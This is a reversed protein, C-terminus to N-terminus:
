SHFFNILDIKQFNNSFNENEDMWGCGDVKVGWKSKCEVGQAELRRRVGGGGGGGWKM